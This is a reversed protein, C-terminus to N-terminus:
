MNHMTTEQFIPVVRKDDMKSQSKKKKKYVLWKQFGGYKENTSLGWEGWSLGM